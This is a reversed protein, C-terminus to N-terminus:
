RWAQPGLPSPLSLVLNALPAALTSRAGSQRM